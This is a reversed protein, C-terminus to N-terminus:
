HASNVAGVAEQEAFRALANVSNFNEIDLDEDEVVLGLEKEIFAILQMAFMLNSFGPQFIDDDDRLSETNFFRSLFSRIKAKKVEM